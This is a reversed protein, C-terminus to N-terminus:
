GRPYNGSRNAPRNKLASRNATLARVAFRARASAPAPFLSLYLRCLDFRSRVCRPMYRRYFAFLASPFSAVFLLARALANRCIPPSLFCAPFLPFDRCATFRSCFRQPMDAAIFLLRPIPSLRPLRYLAPLLTAAYRRCYFALPSYPFTAALPLARAFPNRCLPPSLFCAPFLPFDRRLVFRLRARILRNVPAYFVSIISPCPPTDFRDCRPPRSFRKPSCGM